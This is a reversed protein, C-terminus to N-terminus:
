TVRQGHRLRCVYGPLIYRKFWREDWGYSLVHRAATQAVVYTQVELRAGATTIVLVATRLYFDSEYTDLRQLQVPSLRHYLVGEVRGGPLRLIGPFPQARVQYRAFDVLWAPQSAPVVGCVARMVPAFM